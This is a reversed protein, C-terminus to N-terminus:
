FTFVGVCCVCLQCRERLRGLALAHPDYQRLPARFARRLGQCLHTPPPPQSTVPLPAIEHRLQMFQKNTRQSEGVWGLLCSSYGLGLGLVQDCLQLAALLTSVEFWLLSLCPNSEIGTTVKESARWLFKEQTRVIYRSERPSRM